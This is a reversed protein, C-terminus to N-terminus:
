IESLPKGFRQVSKGRGSHQPELVLAKRREWGRGPCVRALGWPLIPEGAKLMRAWERSGIVTSGTLIKAYILDGTEEDSTRCLCDVWRKWSEPGAKCKIGKAAERALAKFLQVSEKSLRGTGAHFSCRGDEPFCTAGLVANQGVDYNRFEEERERWFEATEISEPFPEAREATELGLPIMLVSGYHKCLEAGAQDVQESTIDSPAISHRRSLITRLISEKISEEPGAQMKEVAKFDEWDQVVLAWRLDIDEPKQGGGDSSETARGQAISEECVQMATQVISDQPWPLRPENLFLDFGNIRDRIEAILQATYNRLYVAYARLKGQSDQLARAFERVGHVAEAEGVEVIQRRLDILLPLVDIQLSQDIDLAADQDITEHFEKLRMATLESQDKLRRERKARLEHLRGLSAPSIVECRNEFQRASKGDRSGNTSRMALPDVVIHRVLPIQRIAGEVDKILGNLAAPDLAFKRAIPGRILRLKVAFPETAPALLRWYELAVAVFMLRAAAERGCKLERLAEQLLSSGPSFGVGSPDVGLEGAERESFKAREEADNVIRSAEKEASAIRDRSQAPLDSLDFDAAIKM